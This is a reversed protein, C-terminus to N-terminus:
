YFVVIVKALIKNGNDLELLTEDMGQKEIKRVRSSFSIAGAPLRSALTELLLRREVARVEQRSEM